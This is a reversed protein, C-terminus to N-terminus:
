CEDGPLIEATVWITTSRGSPPETTGIFLPAEKEGAGGDGPNCKIAIQYEDNVGLNIEPQLASPVFGKVILSDVDIEVDYSEPGYNTIVLFMTNETCEYITGFDLYEPPDFHIGEPPIEETEGECGPLVFVSLALAVTIMAIRMRM